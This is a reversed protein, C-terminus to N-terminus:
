HVLPYFFMQFQEKHESSAWFSEMKIPLPQNYSNVNINIAEAKKKRDREGQQIGNQVYSGFDIDIHQCYMSLLKFTNWLTSAYDGFTKLKSLAENM